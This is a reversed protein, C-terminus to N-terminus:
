FERFRRGDGPSRPFYCIAFLILISLISFYAVLLFYNNFPYFLYLPYFLYFPYFPYFPYIPYIQYFPYRQYFPFDLYIAGHSEGMKEKAATVPNSAIEFIARIEALLAWKGNDIIAALSKTLM